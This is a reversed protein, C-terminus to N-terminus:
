AEVSICELYVEADKQSFNEFGEPLVLTIIEARFPELGCIDILYWYAQTETM